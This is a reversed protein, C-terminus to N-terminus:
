SPSVSKFGLGKAYSLIEASDKLRSLGAVEAKSYGMLRIDFLRVCIEQSSMSVGNRGASARIKGLGERERIKELRRVPKLEATGYRCSYVKWIGGCIRDLLCKRCSPSKEKHEHSFSDSALLFPEDKNSDYVCANDQNAGYFQRAGLWKNGGLLCLPIMGCGSMEVRLGKEKMRALAKSFFPEVRFLRPYIHFNKLAHGSPFIYSFTIGQLRPFREGIFEAFEELSRYNLTTIVHYVSVSFGCALLNELGALTRDFGGAATLSESVKKKHSHLSVSFFLRKKERPSSAALASVLKMDALQTANTAVHVKGYGCKFAGRVVAALDKHLTPEGGDLFLTEAGLRRKELIVKLCEALPLEAQPDGGKVCFLCSQNCAGTISLHLQQPM